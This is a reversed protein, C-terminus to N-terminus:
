QCLAILLHVFVNKTNSVFQLDCPIFGFASCLYKQCKIQNYTINM